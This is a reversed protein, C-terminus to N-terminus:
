KSSLQFLKTGKLLRIIWLKELWPLIFTRYLSILKMSFPMTGIGLLFGLLLGGMVSSRNFGSIAIFPTNYCIEWFPVLLEHQLTNEGVFLILASLPYSMMKGVSFFVITMSINVRLIIVLFLLCPWLLSSLPCFGLLFGFLIGFALQLPSTESSLALLINRILWFM